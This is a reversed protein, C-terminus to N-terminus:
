NKKKQSKVLKKKGRMAGAFLCVAWEGGLVDEEQVRTSLVKLASSTLREKKGKEM